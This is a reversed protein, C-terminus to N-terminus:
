GLYTGVMTNRTLGAQPLALGGIVSIAWGYGSGHIPSTSRYRMQWRGCKMASKRMLLIILFQANSSSFCM